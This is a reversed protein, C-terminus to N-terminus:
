AQLGCARTRQLAINHGLIVLSRGLWARGSSRQGVVAVPGSKQFSQPFSRCPRQRVAPRQPRSERRQGSRAPDRFMGQAVAASESSSSFRWASVRASRRTERGPLGRKNRLRQGQACLSGAEAALGCASTRQLGINPSGTFRYEIM